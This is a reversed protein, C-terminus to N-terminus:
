FGKTAPKTLFMRLGSDSSKQMVAASHRKPSNASPQRSLIKVFRPHLIKVATQDARRAAPHPRCETQTAGVRRELVAQLYRSLGPEHHLLQAVALGSTKRGARRTWDAVTVLESAPAKRWMLGVALVCAFVPAAESLDALAGLRQQYTLSDMHANLRQALAFASAPPVTAGFVATRAAGAPVELLQEAGRENLGHQTHKATM